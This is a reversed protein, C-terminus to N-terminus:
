RSNRLQLVVLLKRIMVSEPMRKANRGERDPAAGMGCVGQAAGSYARGVWSGVV